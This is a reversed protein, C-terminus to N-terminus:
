FGIHTLTLSKGGDLWLYAQKGDAHLFIDIGSYDGEQWAWILNEAGLQLVNLMNVSGDQWALMQNNIGEQLLGAQNEFGWQWLWVLNGDGSQLVIAVNDGSAFPDDWGLLLGSGNGMDFRDTVWTIDADFQMVIGLNSAQSVQSTGVFALLLGLAWLGWTVQGRRRSRTLGRTSVSNFRIRM